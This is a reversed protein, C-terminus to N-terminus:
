GEGPTGVFIGAAWVSPKLGVWFLHEQPTEVGKGEERRTSRLWQGGNEGEMKSCLGPRPSGLSPNSVNDRSSHPRSRCRPSNELM